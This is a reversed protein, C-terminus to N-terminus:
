KKELPTPIEKYRKPDFEAALDFTRCGKAALQRNYAELIAVQRAHDKDPDLGVNTGGFITTAGSQLTRSATSVKTKPNYDRIQLLRVQIRGTLKKCSLGKEKDTLTHDATTAPGTGTSPGAVDLAVPGSQSACAGLLVSVSVIVSARRCNTLRMHRDTSM